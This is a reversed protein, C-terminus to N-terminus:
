SVNVDHHDAQPNIDFVFRIRIYWAYDLNIVIGALNRWLWNAATMTDDPSFEMAYTQNGGINRFDFNTLENGVAVPWVRNCPDRPTRGSARIVCHQVLRRVQPSSSVDQTPVQGFLPNFGYMMRVEKVGRFWVKNGIQQDNLLLERFTFVSTGGSFQGLSVFAGQADEHFMYAVQEGPPSDFSTVWVYVDRERVTQAEVRKAPIIVFCAVLIAFVPSFSRQLCAM